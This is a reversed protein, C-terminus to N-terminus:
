VSSIIVSNSCVAELEVEMILPFISVKGEARMANFSGPLVSGRVRLAVAFGIVGSLLSPCLALDARSSTM